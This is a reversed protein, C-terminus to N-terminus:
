GLVGGIARRLWSLRGPRLVPFLSGAAEKVKKTLIEFDKQYNGVTIEFLKEGFPSLGVATHTDKHVDVGIFMTKQKQATTMNFVTLQYHTCFRSFGWYALTMNGFPAVM